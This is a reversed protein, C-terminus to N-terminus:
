SSCKQSKNLKEIANDVRTAFTQDNYYNSEKLKCVRQYKESNWDNINALTYAIYLNKVYAKDSGDDVINRILNDVVLPKTTKDDNALKSLALSAIKRNPKTFQGILNQIQQEKDDLKSISMAKEQGLKKEESSEPKKADIAIYANTYSQKCEQNKIGFIVRQIIPSLLPDNDYTARTIHLFNKCKETDESYISDRNEIFISYIDKKRSEEAQKIQANLEMQKIEKQHDNALKTSKQVVYSQVLVGLLSILVGAVFSVSTNILPSKQWHYERKLKECELRIKVKEPDDQLLKYLDDLLENTSPSANRNQFWAQLKSIISM